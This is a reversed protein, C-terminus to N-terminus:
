DWDRTRLARSFARHGSSSASLVRFALFRSFILPSRRLPDDTGTVPTPGARKGARGRARVITKLKERSILCGDRLDPKTRTSHRPFYSARLISSSGRSHTGDSWGTVTIIISDRCRLRTDRMRVSKKKKCTFRKTEKSGNKPLSNIKEKRDIIIGTNDRPMVVSCHREM